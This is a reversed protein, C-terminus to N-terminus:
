MCTETLFMVDIQRQHMVHFPVKLQFVFRTFTTRTHMATPPGILLINVAPSIKAQKPAIKM